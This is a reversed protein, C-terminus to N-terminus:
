SPVDGRRDMRRRRILDGWWTNAHGRVEAIAIKVKDREAYNHLDFIKDVQSEWDLYAEPDFKGHFEPLSHRMTKSLDEFRAGFEEEYYGDRQFREGYPEVRWPRNGRGGRGNMGNEGGFRGHMGNGMGPRGYEGHGGRNRVYEGEYGNEGDYGDPVENPMPGGRPTPPRSPRGEKLANVEEFLTNHLAQMRIESARVDGRIENVDSRVDSRVGAMESHLGSKLDAIM